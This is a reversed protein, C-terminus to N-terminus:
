LQSNVTPRVPKGCAFVKLLKDVDELTATEDFAVTVQFELFCHMIVTGSGATQSLM